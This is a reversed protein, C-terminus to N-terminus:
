LQYLLLVFLNMELKLEFYGDREQVWSLFVPVSM